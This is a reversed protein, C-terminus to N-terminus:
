KFYYRKSNTKDTLYVALYDGDHFNCNNIKWVREFARETNPFIYDEIFVPHRTDIEGHILKKDYYLSMDDISIKIPQSTNNQFIMYFSVIEQGNEKKITFEGKLSVAKNSNKRNEKAECDPCIWKRHSSKSDYDLVKGCSSCIFFTKFYDDIKPYNKKDCDSIRLGLSDLGRLISVM